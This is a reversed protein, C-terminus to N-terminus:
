QLNAGPETQCTCIAAWLVAKRRRVLEREKECWLGLHEDSAAEKRTDNWTNWSAKAISAREEEPVESDVM